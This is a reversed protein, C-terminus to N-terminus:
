DIAAFIHAAEAHDLAFARLHYFHDVFLRERPYAFSLHSMVYLTVIIGAAEASVTGDFFNSPQAIRYENGPPVVYCGGNSLDWYEWYGGDYAPALERMQEYIRQEVHLMSLGFHKPLFRLRQHTPVKTATVPAVAEAVRHMTHNM